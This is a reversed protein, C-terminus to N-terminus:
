QRRQKKAVWKGGPGHRHWEKGLNESITPMKDDKGEELPGPDSLNHRKVKGAVKPEGDEDETYKVITDKPFSLGKSAVVYNFYHRAARHRGQYDGPDRVMDITRGFGTQREVHKNKPISERHMALERRYAEESEPTMGPIPQDAALARRIKSSSMSTADDRPLTLYNIGEHGSGPAGSYLSPHIDPAGPVVADEGSVNIITHNPYRKQAWNALDSRRPKGLAKEVEESPGTHVILPAGNMHTPFATRSIRARADLSLRDPLDLKKALLKDATPAVISGDVQYGAAALADHADQLAGVHGQHPPNFAGGYMLMVPKDNHPASDTANLLVRASQRRSAVIVDNRVPVERCIYKDVAAQRNDGGTGIVYSNLLKGCKCQVYSPVEHKAGCKCTFPTPKSATYASLHDDWLWGAVKRTFFNAQRRKGRVQRMPNKQPKAADLLADPGVKNKLYNQGKQSYGQQEAFDQVDTPGQVAGPGRGKMWKNFDGAVDATKPSNVGRAKKPAAQRKRRAQMQMQSPDMPPQGGGMSPDGGGMSPDGGGGGLMQAIMNPDMGGGSPDGGPAGGGSPDGGPLVNVTGAPPQVGMPNAMQQAQEAQQVTQLAQQLPAITEQFEEAKQNLLNTLAEDAKQLYDPAATRLYAANKGMQRKLADPNVKIGGAVAGKNKGSGGVGPSHFAKEPAPLSRSPQRQHMREKALDPDVNVLQSGVSDYGNAEIYIPSGPDTIASAIEFYAQDNLNEAYKDLNNISARRLGFSDCWDVYQAVALSGIKAPAAPAPAPPSAGPAPAAPAPSGFSDMASKAADASQAAPAGWKGGATSLDRSDVGGDVGKPKGLNYEQGVNIVDPNSIGAHEALGKYNDGWGSRQAIDSLTDGQVAKYKESNIADTLNNEQWGGGGGGSNEGNGGSTGGGKGAGSGNNTAGGAGAVGAAAPPAASPTPSLPTNGGQQSAGGMGIGVRDSPTLGSFDAGAGLAGGASLSPVVGSDGSDVASDWGQQTKKIQDELDGPGPGSVPQYPADIGDASYFYRSAQIGPIGQPVGPAQSVPDPAGEGMGPTATEQPVAGVGNDAYYYRYGEKFCNDVAADSNEDVSKLYAEWDGKPKLEPGTKDARRLQIEKVSIENPEGNQRHKGGYGDKSNGGKRDVWEDISKQDWATRQKWDDKCAKVIRRVVGTVPVINANITKIMDDKCLAVRDNWEEVDRSAYLFPGYKSKVDDIAADLKRQTDRTAIKKESDSGEISEFIGYSSM